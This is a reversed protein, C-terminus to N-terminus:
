GVTFVSIFFRDIRFEIAPQGPQANIHAATRAITLNLRRLIGSM